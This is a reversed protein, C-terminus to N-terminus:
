CPWINIWLLLETQFHCLSSLSLLAATSHHMTHFHRRGRRKEDSNSGHLDAASDADNCNDGIIGVGSDKTLVQPCVQPKPFTLIFPLKARRKFLRILRVSLLHICCCVIYISLSTLLKGRFHASTVNSGKDLQFTLSLEEQELLSQDSSSFDQYASAVSDLWDTTANSMLKRRQATSEPTASISKASNKEQSSLISWRRRNLDCM